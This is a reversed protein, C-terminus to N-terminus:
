SGPKLLEYQLDLLRRSIEHLVDTHTGLVEMVARLHTNTNALEARFVTLDAKILAMERDRQENEARIIRLQELVLNEPTSM